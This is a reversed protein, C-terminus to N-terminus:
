DQQSAIINSHTIEFFIYHCSVKMPPPQQRFAQRENKNRPVQIQQAAAAAMALSQPLTSEVTETQWEVNQKEFYRFYMLLQM